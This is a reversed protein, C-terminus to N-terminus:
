CRPYRERICCDSLANIDTQSQIHRSVCILISGKKECRPSNELTHLVGREQHTNWVHYVYLYILLRIFLHIVPHIFLGTFLYIFLYIFLYWVTKIWVMVFKHFIIPLSFYVWGLKQLFLKKKRQKRLPWKIM